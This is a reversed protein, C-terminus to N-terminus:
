CEEDSEEMMALLKALKSKKKPNAAQKPIATKAGKPAPEVPFESAKAQKISEVAAKTKRLPASPVAASAPTEARMGRLRDLESSIDGVKM